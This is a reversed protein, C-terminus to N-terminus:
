SSNLEDFKLQEFIIKTASIGNPVTAIQHTSTSEM